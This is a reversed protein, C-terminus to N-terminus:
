SHEATPLASNLSRDEVRILQFGAVRKLLVLTGYVIFMQGLHLMSFLLMWQPFETRPPSEGLFACIVLLEIPGVLSLLATAGLLRAPTAKVLFAAWISPVVFVLNCFALPVLFTWLQWPMLGALWFQSWKVDSLIWRCISLTGALLVTGVFMQQLNFQGSLDNNDDTAVLRWRFARSAIWLPIQTVLCGYGLLFGLFLTDDGVASPNWGGAFYQGFVLSGWMLVVLLLAWPLRLIVSGTSVAAWVSILNLQGIYQGILLGSLSAKLFGESPNFNKKMTVGLGINVFLLGVILSCVVVFKPRLKSM